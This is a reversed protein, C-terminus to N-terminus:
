RVAAEPFIGREVKAQFIREAQGRIIEEAIPEIDEVSGAMTLIFWDISDLPEVMKTIEAQGRKESEGPGTAPLRVRGNAIDAAIKERLTARRYPTPLESLYRRFRNKAVRPNSSVYVGDVTIGHPNTM